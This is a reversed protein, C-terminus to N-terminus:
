RKPLFLFALFVLVAGDPGSSCSGMGVPAMCNSVGAIATLTGCASPALTVFMNSAACWSWSPDLSADDYMWGSRTVDLVCSMDSDGRSSWSSITLVGM